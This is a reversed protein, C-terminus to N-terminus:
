YARAVSDKCVCDNLDYVNVHFVDGISQKSIMNQLRILHSSKRMELLRFKRWLLIQQGCLKGFLRSFVSGTLDTFVRHIFEEHLLVSLTILGYFDGPQMQIM